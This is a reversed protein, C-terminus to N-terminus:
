ARKSRRFVRTFADSIKDKLFIWAAGIAVFVPVLMQMLMGGTNPDVYAFFTRQVAFHLLDHSMM